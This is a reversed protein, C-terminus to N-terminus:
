SSKLKPTLYFPRGSIEETWSLAVTKLSKRNNLVSSSEFKALPLSQRFQIPSMKKVFQRPEKGDIFVKQGDDSPEFTIKSAHVIKGIEDVDDFSVGQRIAQLTIARYMAGTDCYIYHFQKAVRKAVTSKGASAPGDIAVQLGNKRM